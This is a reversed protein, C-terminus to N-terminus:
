LFPHDHHTLFTEARKKLTVASIACLYAAADTLVLARPRGGSLDFIPRERQLRVWFAQNDASSAIQAFDQIYLIESLRLSVSGGLHLFM